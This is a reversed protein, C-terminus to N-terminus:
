ITPPVKRGVILAVVFLMSFVYFIVRAMDGAVGTTGGFGFTAAIIAVILFILAQPLM